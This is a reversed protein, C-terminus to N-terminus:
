TAAFTAQGYKGCDIYAEIKKTDMALLISHHNPTQFAHLILILAPFLSLSSVFGDQGYEVEARAHRVIYVVADQNEGAEHLTSHQM